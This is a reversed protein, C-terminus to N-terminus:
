LSKTLSTVTTMTLLSKFSRWRLTRPTYRRFSSRRYTWKKALVSGVERQRQVANSHALKCQIRWRLSDFRDFQKYEKFEDSEGLPGLIWWLFDQQWKIKTKAVIFSWVTKYTRTGNKTCDTSFEEWWTRLDLSEYYEQIKNGSKAPKKKTTKKAM